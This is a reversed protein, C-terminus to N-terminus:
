SLLSRLRAMVKEKGLLSITDNLDRGHMQGTVAVRSTMFLPKGKFGTEAQVRKVMAKVGEPTFDDNAEAQALLSQLVPGASEEALLARCEDDFTLGERFFLETLEVIEAAHSMQEQYLAVLRDAWARTEDDLEAPLRDAKQLFPIALDAVRAPDAKKMYQNSMWNLKETDFVAPSKSVRD